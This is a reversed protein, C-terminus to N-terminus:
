NYKNMAIYAKGMRYFAKLYTPIYKLAIKCDEVVKGYNKYKLNIAARNAHLKANLEESSCKIKIAQTYKQYADKM